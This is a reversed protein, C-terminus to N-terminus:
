FPHRLSATVARGAEPYISQTEGATCGHAQPYFKRHTAHALGWALEAAGFRYAYRLDWAVSLAHRSELELGQRQTPDFHTNAGNSGALRASAFATKM